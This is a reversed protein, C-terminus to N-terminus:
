SGEYQVNRLARVSGHLALTLLIPLLVKIKM